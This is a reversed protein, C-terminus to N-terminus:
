KRRLSKRRRVSRRRTKRKGGRQPSSPSYSVTQKDGFNETTYPVRSRYATLKPRATNMIQLQNGWYKSPLATALKIPQDTQARMTTELAPM